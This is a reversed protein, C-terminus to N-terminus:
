VISEEDTKPLQLRHRFQTMVPLDPARAKADRALKLGAQLDTQLGLDTFLLDTQEERDLLVLAEEATSATLTQHGAEKLISEALVRVQEEDEVILIRAM